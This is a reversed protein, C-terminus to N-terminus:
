VEAEVTLKGVDDIIAEVMNCGAIETYMMEVDKLPDSDVQM